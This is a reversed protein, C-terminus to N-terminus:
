MSARSQRRDKDYIAQILSQASLHVTCNRPNADLGLGNVNEYKYIKRHCIVSNRRYSFSYHCSTDSLCPRFIHPLEPNSTLLQIAEERSATRYYIHKEIELDISPPNSKPKSLNNEPNIHSNL